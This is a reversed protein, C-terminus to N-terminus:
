CGPAEDDRPSNSTPDTSTPQEPLDDLSLIARSLKWNGSQSRIYLWFYKGSADTRRGDHRAIVTFSFAGRDFGVDGRVSIEESVYSIQRDFWAQQDALVRRVFAACEAKGEQTPENPVMLVADDTLVDVLPDADFANEAAQLRERISHLAQVEDPAPATFREFMDDGSHLSATM